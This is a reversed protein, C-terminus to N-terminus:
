FKAVHVKGVRVVENARVPANTSNLRNATTRRRSYRRVRRATDDVHNAFFTAIVSAGDTNGDTSVVILKTGIKLVATTQRAVDSIM